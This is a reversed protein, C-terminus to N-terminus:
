KGREGEVSNQSAVRVSSHSSAFRRDRSSFVDTHVSHQVDASEMDDTVIQSLAEAIANGDRSIRRQTWIRQWM